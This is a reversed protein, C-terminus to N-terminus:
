SNGCNGCVDSRVIEQGEVWGLIIVFDWICYRGTTKERWVVNIEFGFFMTLIM